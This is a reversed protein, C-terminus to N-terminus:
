FLTNNNKRKSFYPEDIESWKHKPCPDFNNTFIKKSIPCGCESCITSIKLGKVLEKKFECSECINARDYALQKQIKTPKGSIIWAEIIESINM